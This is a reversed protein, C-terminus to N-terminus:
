TRLVSYLIFLLTPVLEAKEFTGMRLLFSGFAPYNFDIGTKGVDKASQLVLLVLSDARRMTFDNATNDTLSLLEPVESAVIACLMLSVLAAALMRVITIRPSM